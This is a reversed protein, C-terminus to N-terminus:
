RHTKRQARSRRGKAQVPVSWCTVTSRMSELAASIRMTIPRCYPRGSGPLPCPGSRPCANLRDPRTPWNMDVRFETTEDSM